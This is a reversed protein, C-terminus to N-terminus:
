ALEIKEARYYMPNGQMSCELNVFKIKVSDKKMIDDNTMFPKPDLIKIQTSKKKFKGDLITVSYNMGIVKDTAFNRPKGERDKIIEGNEDARHEQEFVPTVEDLEFLTGITNFDWDRVSLLKAM